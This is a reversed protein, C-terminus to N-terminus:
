VVQQFERLIPKYDSGPNPRCPSAPRGPLGPTGPNCPTAPCFTVPRFTCVNRKEKTLSVTKLVFLAIFSLSAGVADVTGLPHFSFLCTSQRSFFCLTNSSSSRIEEKWMTCPVAPKGPNGPNLPEAPFAPINPNFPAGPGVPSRPFVPGLTFHKRNRSHAPLSSFENRNGCELTFFYIFKLKLKKIKFFPINILM